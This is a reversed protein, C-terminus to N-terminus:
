SLLEDIQKEIDTLHEKSAIAMDLYASKKSFEDRDPSEIYDDFVKKAKKSAFVLISSTFDSSWSDEDLGKGFKELCEGYIAELRDHRAKLLEVRREIKWQKSSKALTYIPVISAIVSGLLVNIIQDFM